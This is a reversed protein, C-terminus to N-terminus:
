SHKKEDAGKISRRGCKGVTEVRLACCLMCVFDSFSYPDDFMEFYLRLFGKTEKYKQKNLSDNNLWLSSFFLFMNNKNVNSDETARTNHSIVKRRTINTEFSSFILVESIVIRGTSYRFSMDILVFFFGSDTM